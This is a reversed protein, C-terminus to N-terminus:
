NDVVNSIAFLIGSWGLYHFHYSIPVDLGNIWAM